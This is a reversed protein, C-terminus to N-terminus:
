DQVIKMLHMGDRMTRNEWGTRDEDHGIKGDQVIKMLGM